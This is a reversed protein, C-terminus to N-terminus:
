DTSNNRFISIYGIRVWNPQIFSIFYVTKTAGKKFMDTMSTKNNTQKPSNIAITFKQIFEHKLPCGCKRSFTELSKIGVSSDKKTLIWRPSPPLYFYFLFFPIAFLSIHYQIAHWERSFYGVM